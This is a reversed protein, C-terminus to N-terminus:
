SGALERYLALVQELSEDSAATVATPRPENLTQEIAACLAEVTSSAMLRVGAPRMGNDTAVVPVGLHLAERVSIADGDYATTRLFVDADAMARLMVDHDLDGTMLVHERCPSRDLYERLERELRGSGAIVLGAGPFRERVRALADIQVPLGYEPELGAAAVLVPHHAAYFAALPAPLPGEPRPGAADPRIVRIREPRVGFKVFLAELEQNVAIIRDFRRFVFGAFSAPRARRGAESAPYGGSHCTLVVKRGPLLCCFLGLGLLRPWITGGVHFHIVDAPLRLLLAVVGLPTRPYYVDDADPRRHRTLNVVACPIGRARLYRRIAVLNTEVGGHPPPYPGLQLITM